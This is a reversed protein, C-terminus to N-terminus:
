VHASQAMRFDLYVKSYVVSSFHSVEAFSVLFIFLSPVAELPEHNELLYHTFGKHLFYKGKWFSFFFGAYTFKVINTYKRCITYKLTVLLDVTVKTFHAEVCGKM